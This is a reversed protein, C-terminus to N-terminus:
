DYFGSIRRRKFMKANSECNFEWSVDIEEERLEIQKNLPACAVARELHSLDLSFLDCTGSNLSGTQDLDWEREGKLRFLSASGGLPLFSSILPIILASVILERKRRDERDKEAM